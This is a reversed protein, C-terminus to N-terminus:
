FHWKRVKRPEKTLWDLYHLISRRESILYDEKEVFKHFNLAISRNSLHQGLIADALCTYSSWGPNEKEGKRYNVEISKM